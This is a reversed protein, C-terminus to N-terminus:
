WFRWWNSRDTDPVLSAIADAASEVADRHKTVASELATLRLDLSGAQDGGPRLYQEILSLQSFVEEATNYCSELTPRLQNSVLTRANMRGFEYSHRWQGAYSRIEEARAESNLNSTPPVTSMLDGDVSGIFQTRLRDYPQAYLMIQVLAENAREVFRENTQRRSNVRAIRLAVVAAILTAVPGFAALTAQWGSTM